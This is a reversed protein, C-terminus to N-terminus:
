ATTPAAVFFLVSVIQALMSSVILPSSNYKEYLDSLKKRGFWATGHAKHVKLRQKKAPIQLLYLFVCM